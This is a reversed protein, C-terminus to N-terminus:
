EEVKSNATFRSPYSLARVHELRILPTAPTVSTNRLRTISSTTISLDDSGYSRRSEKLPRSSAPPPMSGIMASPARPPESRRPTTRASTDTSPRSATPGHRSPIDENDDEIEIVEGDGVGGEKRSRKKSPQGRQFSKGWVPKTLPNGMLAEFYSPNGLHNVETAHCHQTKSRSTPRAPRADREPSPHTSNQSQTSERKEAAAQWEREIDEWLDDDM